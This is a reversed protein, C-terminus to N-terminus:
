AALDEGDQPSGLRVLGQALADVCEADFATGIDKRLIALAQAVPLAARYPREAALADFVDAVTLIRMELCLEDGALGYPYGKGDLREHHAGAIPAIDAFASVRELIRESHWPHSRVVQWERDDLKDPKDLVQNSVALKGIDHLLAARRLWRRHDPSLGMEEAIMDSYFM